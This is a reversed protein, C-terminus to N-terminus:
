ALILDRDIGDDIDGIYEVLRNKAAMSAAFDLEDYDRGTKVGEVIAPLLDLNVSTVAIFESTAAELNFLQLVEGIAIPNSRRIDRHTRFGYQKKNVAILSYDPYNQSM